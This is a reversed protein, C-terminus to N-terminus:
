PSVSPNLTLPSVAVSPDFGFPRVKSSPHENYAHIISLSIDMDCAATVRTRAIFTKLETKQQDDSKTTAASVPASLICKNKVGIRKRVGRNGRERGENM